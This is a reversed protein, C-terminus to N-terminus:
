LGPLTPGRGTDSVLPHVIGRGRGDLLLRGGLAGTDTSSVQVRIIGFEGSKPYTGSLTEFTEDAVGRLRIM